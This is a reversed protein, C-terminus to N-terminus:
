INTSKKNLSQNGHSIHETMYDRVKCKTLSGINNSYIIYKINLKKMVDACRSCPASDKYNVKQGVPKGVTKRVVYLSVKEYFASRNKDCHGITSLQFNNRSSIKSLRRMVDIEAHCSYTDDLFGDNSYCRYSNYGRAIVQGGVVAVCGHQHHKMISKDAENLALSAFKEDRFSCGPGNLM